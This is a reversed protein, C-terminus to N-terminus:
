IKRSAQKTHCQRALPKQDKAAQEDSLWNDPKTLFIGADMSTRATTFVRCHQVHLSVVFFCVPLGTGCMGRFRVQVLCVRM